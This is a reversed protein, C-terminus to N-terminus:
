YATDAAPPVVPPSVANPQVTKNSAKEENIKFKKIQRYFEYLNGLERLVREPNKM